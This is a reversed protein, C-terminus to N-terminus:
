PRPSVMAAVRFMATHLVLIRLRFTVKKGCSGNKREGDSQTAKATSVDKKEEGGGGGQGGSSLRRVSVAEIRRAGAGCHWLAVVSAVIIRRAPAKM